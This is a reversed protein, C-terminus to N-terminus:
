GYFPRGGSFAFGGFKWWADFPDGNFSHSQESQQERKPAKHPGPVYDIEFEVYQGDQKLHDDPVISTSMGMFDPLQGVHYHVRYPRSFLPTYKPLIENQYESCLKRALSSSIRLRTPKKGNNQLVRIGYTDVIQLMSRSLELNTINM